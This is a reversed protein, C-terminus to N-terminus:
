ECEPAPFAQGATLASGPCASGGQRGPWGSLEGFGEGEDVGSIVVNFLLSGRVEPPGITVGGAAPDPCRKVCEGATVPLDEVEDVAVSDAKGVKRGHQRYRGAARGAHQGRGPRLELLRHRGRAMASRRVIGRPSTSLPGIDSRRRIGWLNTTM